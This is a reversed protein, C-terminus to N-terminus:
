FTQKVKAKAKFGIKLDMSQDSYIKVYPRNSGNKSTELRLKLVFRDVKKDTLYKYKQADILAKDTSTTRSSIQGNADVVAGELNLQNSYLSDIIDYVETSDIGNAVKRMKAFYLQMMARLPLGNEAINELALTQIEIDNIDPFELSGSDAIIFEELLLDIPIEIETNLVLSSTDFIFNDDEIENYNAFIDLNYKISKLPNQLINNIVDDINSNNKDVAYSMTAYEGVYAPTPLSFTDKFLDIQVPSSQEDVSVVTLETIKATIPIGLGSSINFIIRPNKLKAKASFQSEFLDIHSEESYSGLNFKGLYGKIGSHETIDFQQTIEIKDGAIVAPNGDIKEIDIQFVYPLVNYSTGNNTFDITYDDLSITSSATIPTNPDGGNFTLDLTDTLPKGNKTINTYLFVLTTKHKVDCSVSSSFTGNKVFLQKLKENNQTTIPAYDNLSNSFSGVTNFAFAALADINHTYNVDIPPITVSQQQEITESTQYIFSFSQDPNQRLFSNNSVSEYIEKIGIKTNLLPLAYAGTAQVGKFDAIDEIDKYCSQFTLSFVVFLGYTLLLEKKM